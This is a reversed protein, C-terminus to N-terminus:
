WRAGEELMEGPEGLHSWYPLDSLTDGVLYHALMVLLLVDASCYRILQDLAHREQRSDWAHWLQVAVAGDVDQLDGPRTIGIRTSINKLSGRLGRHYCIWRLDIHPCPLAPIHFTDLVRPVDFSSGNFSGILTVEDLLELFEDLNEHEVFRHLRGDHWCVIVTIPADNELGATEIDFYSLDGFFHALIRWRDQPMFRDVFYRIDSTQLAELCRRCEDTLEQRNQGPIREAHEVVDSWSHVGASHLRELRVPGIGSCHQM